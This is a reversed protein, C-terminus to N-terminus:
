RMTGVVIQQTPQGLRALGVCQTDLGYVEMGETAGMDLLQRLATGVQPHYMPMRACLPPANYLSRAPVIM